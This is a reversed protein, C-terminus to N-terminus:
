TARENYDTDFIKLRLLIWLQAIPKSYQALNMVERTRSARSLFGRKLAHSLPTPSLKNYGLQSGSFFVNNFVTLQSILPAQMGSLVFIPFKQAKKQKAPM